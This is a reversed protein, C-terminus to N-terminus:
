RLNKAFSLTQKLASDKPIGALRLKHAYALIQSFDETPTLGAAVLDKGGVFPRSMYEEYVALRERLFPETDVFPHESLRGRNDSVALLLLDCPERAEDFMKNTSKVSSGHSQMTNPKMHLADLNLVYSTLDKEKTLRALFAKILPLGANEHNYAHIAGNIKETCIAKGFDHTLACLMLGLPNKAEDRRKAAEDLVMMTHVWVDGESHHLTGQEVGILAYLEPFFESLKEMSRLIEFFVSPRPAKLLAKKLEEFVRERPLARIDMKKCLEMTSEAVSFGFRAAFQACRLVRLPDEAFSEACVHRIVGNRLDEMGGFHDLIEGTLVDQMLAGITFDRRMAAKLTGIYPDVDIAFDRHGRGIATEKRPMAVDISTGKISYVGFSKGYETREGVSDLIGELERPPIGHVEMDIDKNEIGLLTDRVYGGVFYANGGCEAVKKAILLSIEKDKENM